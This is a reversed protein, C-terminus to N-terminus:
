EPPQEGSVTVIAREDFKELAVTTYVYEVVNSFSAHIGDTHPTHVKNNKYIAMMATDRTACTTDCFYFLERRARDHDRAREDSTQRPDRDTFVTFVCRQASLVPATVTSPGVRCVRREEAGVGAHWLSRPAAM